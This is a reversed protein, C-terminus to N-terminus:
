ASRARQVRGLAHVVYHAVHERFVGEDFVGRRHELPEAVVRGASCQRQKSELEVARLKSEEKIVSSPLLKQEVGMAIMLHKGQSAVLGADGAPPVWGRSMLSMGTCPMLPQKSLEAELSGPSMAWGAALRYAQINKFWM